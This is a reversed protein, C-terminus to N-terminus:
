TISHNMKFTEDTATIDEMRDFSFMAFGGDDFRGM